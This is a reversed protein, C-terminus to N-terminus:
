QRMPEDPIGGTNSQSILSEEREGQRTSSSDRVADLLLGQRWLLEMSHKMLVRGPSM